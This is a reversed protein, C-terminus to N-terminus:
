APKHYFKGADQVAKGKLELIMLTASIEAVSMPLRACLEDIHVPERGLERLIAEEKQLLQETGGSAALTRAAASGGARGVARAGRGGASDSCCVTRGATREEAVGVGASVRDPSDACPVAAFPPTDAVGDECTFLSEQAEPIMDDVPRLGELLDAMDRVLTAGSRLLAHCGASSEQDIRGPIAFVERGLELAQQATILAGSRVPAEVVLVGLSMGAIIRNRRPFTDRSPALELPFESVIAGTAAIEMYLDRNEPPYIHELGCGVVAITRGGSALAGRHAYTDIGRALGSIVAYGARALGAGFREAQERGYRSAQRTGVVGVSSTDSPRLSGKVYLLFPPDASELLPKPFAPDDYALLRVGRAAALELEPRPDIRSAEAIARLHAKNVGAVQALTAESAGLIKESTGFHRLLRNVTVCGVGPALLLRVLNEVREVSQM